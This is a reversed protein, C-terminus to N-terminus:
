EDRRRRSCGDFTAGHVTGAVAGVVVFAQIPINPGTLVTTIAYLVGMGTGVAAGAVLGAAAFALHNTTCAPEQKPSTAGLESMTPYSFGM